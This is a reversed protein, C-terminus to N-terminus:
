GYNTKGVMVCGYWGYASGARYEVGVGIYLNKASGIYSWHNSSNRCLDAIYKGMSEADKGEFGACIAETTDAEYYSESPDLGVITADIWRGYEYYALAERKDATDHSYNYTLQDARYEAVLTMVPLVTCPSVGAEARYQNIYQAAYQAVQRKFEYSDMDIQPQTEEPETAPPETEEPETPDTPTTTEPPVTPQTPVTPDEEPKTPDTPESPETPKVTPDTPKTTGEPSQPNSPKTEGTEEQVTPGAPGGTSEVTPDTSVSDSPATSGSTPDQLDGEPGTGKTDDEPDTQGPITTSQTDQYPDSPSNTCSDPDSAFCGTLVLSLILTLIILKRM